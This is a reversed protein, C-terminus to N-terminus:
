EQGSQDETEDFQHGDRRWFNGCWQQFMEVPNGSGIPIEFKAIGVAHKDDSVHTAPMADWNLLKNKEFPTLYKHNRKASKPAKSASENESM